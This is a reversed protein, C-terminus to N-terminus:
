VDVVTMEYNTENRSSVYWPCTSTDLAASEEVPVSVPPQQVQNQGFKPRLRRSYQASYQAREGKTGKQSFPLRFM